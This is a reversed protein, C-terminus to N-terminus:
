LFPNFHFHQYHSNGAWISMATHTLHTIVKIGEPLLSRAIGNRRQEKQIYCYDLIDGRHILYGLVNDRDEDLLALRVYCLPTELIRSIYNGYTAYYADPPYILKFYSNGHRLSRLWTSYVLAEYEKPLDTGLYSKVIYFQEEIM